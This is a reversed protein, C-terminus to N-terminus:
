IYKELARRNGVIKIGTGVRKLILGTIGLTPKNLRRVARLVSGLGAENGIQKVLKLNSEVTNIKV